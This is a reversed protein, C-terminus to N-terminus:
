YHHGKRRPERNEVGTHPTGPYRDCQVERPTMFPRVVDEYGPPYSMAYVPEPLSGSASKPTPKVEVKSEFISM